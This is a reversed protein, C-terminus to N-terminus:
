VKVELHTRDAKAKQAALFRRWARAARIAQQGWRTWALRRERSTQKRGYRGLQLTLVFASM